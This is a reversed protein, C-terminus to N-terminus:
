YDDIVLRADLPHVLSDDNFNWLDTMRLDIANRAFAPYRGEPVNVTDIKMFITKNNLPYEFVSGIDLEKFLVTKSQKRCDDIKM